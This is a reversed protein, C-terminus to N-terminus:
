EKKLLLHLQLEIYGSTAPRRKMKRNFCCSSIRCPGTRPRWRPWNKERRRKWSPRAIRWAIGHLCYTFMCCTHLSRVLLMRCSLSASPGLLKAQQKSAPGRWEEKPAVCRYNHWFSFSFDLIALFLTEQWFKRYQYKPIRGLSNLTKRGNQEKIQKGGGGDFREAQQGGLTWEVRLFCEFQLKSMKSATEGDGKLFDCM